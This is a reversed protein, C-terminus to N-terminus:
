QYYPFNDIQSGASNLSSVPSVVEEFRVLRGLDDVIVRVLYSQRHHGVTVGNARWCGPGHAKMEVFFVNPDDTPYFKSRPDRTMWPSCVKSWAFLVDNNETTEESEEGRIRSSFHAVKQYDKHLVEKHRYEDREVGSAFQYINIQRREYIAEKSEDLTQEEKGHPIVGFSPNAMYAAIDPDNPDIVFGEYYQNKNGNKDVPLEMVYTHYRRGAATLWSWTHFRWSIFSVKGSRFEIRMFFDTDLKGTQNGWYVEGRQVGQVWFVDADPTPYFETIASDWQKVSRNLWEFCREAEWTDFWVPMGPPASPIEMTFDDTFYRCFIENNWFASEAVLKAIQKNREKYLM